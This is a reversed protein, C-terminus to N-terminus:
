YVSTSQSAVIVLGVKDNSYGLPAILAPLPWGELGAGPRTVVQSGQTMMDVKASDESVRRQLKLRM